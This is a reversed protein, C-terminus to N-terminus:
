DRYQDHLDHWRMISEDFGVQVGVNAIGHRNKDVVILAGNADRHLLLISDAEQEIIGSDRLDSMRPTEDPRNASQRNLQALVIVPIKLDRALNKMQTAVEGVDLHQSGKSVDVKIRTLYDVIVLDLGGDMDWARCQLAVDSATMVTKDCIRINLKNLHMTAATIRAWEQENFDATRFRKANIRSIQSTMRFAIQDVSMETSIFGIRKGERATNLIVSVALATKGVSPRSGFISLDSPQLPGIVDDLKTIGTKVGAVQHSETLTELKDVMATIMEKATFSTKRETSNSFLKLSDIVIEGVVSSAPKGGAIEKMGNRLREFMTLDCYKSRLMALYHAYNGPAGTVNERIEVLQKITLGEGVEEVVSFVDPTLGRSAIKIIAHIATKWRNFLTLDIPQSLALDPHRLLISLIVDELHAIENQTTM